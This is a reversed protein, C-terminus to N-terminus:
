NDLRALWLDRSVDEAFTEMKERQRVFGRRVDDLVDVWPNGAPRQMAEIVTPNAADWAACEDNYRSM